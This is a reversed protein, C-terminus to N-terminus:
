LEIVLWCIVILLLSAALLATKQVWPHKLCDGLGSM